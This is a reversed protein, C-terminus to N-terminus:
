YLSTNDPPSKAPLFLSGALSKSNLQKHLKESIEFGELGLLVNQMANYVDIFPKCGFSKM